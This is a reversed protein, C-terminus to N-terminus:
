DNPHESTETQRQDYEKNSNYSRERKERLKM